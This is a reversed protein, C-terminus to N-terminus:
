LTPFLSAISDNMRPDLTQTKEQSATLVWTMQREAGMEMDMFYLNYYYSNNKIIDCDFM